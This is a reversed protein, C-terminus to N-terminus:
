STGSNSREADHTLAGHGLQYLITGRLAKTFLSSPRRSFRPAALAPM